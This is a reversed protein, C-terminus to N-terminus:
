RVLVNILLLLVIGALVIYEVLTDHTLRNRKTHIIGNGTVYFLLFITVALLSVDRVFIIVIVLAVSILINYITHIRLTKHHEKKM